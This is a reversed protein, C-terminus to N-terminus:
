SASRSMRGYSNAELAALGKHIEGLTLVSVYLLSEDATEIWATVRAEPRVRVVESICNTDLLFGTM